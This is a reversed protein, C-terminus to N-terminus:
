KVEPQCPVNSCLTCNTLQQQQQENHIYIAYVSGCLVDCMYYVLTHYKTHTFQIICAAQMDYLSVPQNKREKKM